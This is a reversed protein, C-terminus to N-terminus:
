RSIRKMIPRSFGSLLIKGDLVRYVLALSLGWVLHAIFMLLNKKLPMDIASSDFKILPLVGLYGTTWVGIGLLLARVLLPFKKELFQIFTGAFAGFTFHGLMTFSTKEKENLKSKIGLKGSLWMMIQRPPLSSREKLPLKQHLKSMVLTMPLTASLGAIAGKVTNNM